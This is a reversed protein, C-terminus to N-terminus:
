DLTTTLLDRHDDTPAGRNIDLGDILDAVTPTEDVPTLILGVHRITRVCFEDGPDFPCGDDSSIANPIYFQINGVGVETVTGTEKPM